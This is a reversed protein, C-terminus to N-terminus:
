RETGAPLRALRAAGVPLFCPDPYAADCGSDAGHIKIELLSAELYPRGKPLIVGWVGLASITGRVPCEAAVGMSGAVCSACFCVQKPQFVDRLDSLGVMSGASGFRGSVMDGLTVDVHRKFREM